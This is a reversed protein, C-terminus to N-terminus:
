TEKKTDMKLTRGNQIFEKKKDNKIRRTNQNKNCFTGQEFEVKIKKIKEKIENLEKEDKLLIANITELILFVDNENDFLLEEVSYSNEQKEGLYIQIVNPKINSDKFRLKREKEKRLRFIEDLKEKDRINM